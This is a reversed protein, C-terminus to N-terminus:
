RSDRVLKPKDLNTEEYFIFKIEAFGISGDVAERIRFTQRLQRFLRKSIILEPDISSVSNFDRFRNM